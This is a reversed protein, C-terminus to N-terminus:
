WFQYVPQKNPFFFGFNQEVEGAKLNENFMAFFFLDMIYSSRRPTGKQTVHDRVKSNYTQANAPSTYPLDGMTPWGTEAVLLKVNGFNIKELAANFADVMADFINFYQFSGDTVVASTANFFVYEPSIHSPDSSYAFYPYVNIMLPADQQALIGAVSTMTATVDATFAGASPPYSAGLANMPLVTTVKVDPLGATTLANRINNMAAPVNPGIDGPIVENGINIYKFNVDAKYPVINTNVWSNAADQSAAFSAIDENRPGMTVSLGSGKLAQLVEPYPQYLRLSGIKSTKYLSIVEPPPPLNNGNLGYCVGISGADALSLLQTSLFLASIFLQALTPTPGM